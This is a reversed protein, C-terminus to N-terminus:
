PFHPAVSSLLLVEMEITPNIGAAGTIQRGNFVDFGETVDSSTKNV